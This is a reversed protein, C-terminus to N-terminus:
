RASCRRFAEYAASSGRLPVTSGAISMTSGSTFADAFAPSAVYFALHTQDSTRGRRAVVLSQSFSRDIQVTVQASPPMTDEIFVFWDGEAKTYSMGVIRGGAPVEHFVLCTSAGSSGVIRGTTWSQHRRIDLMSGGFPNYNQAGREGSPPPVANRPAPRYWQPGAVVALFVWFAVGISSVKIATRASPAGMPSFFRWLSWVIAAVFLILIASGIGEAVRFGLVAGFNPVFAILALLLALALVALFILTNRRIRSEPSMNATGTLRPGLAAFRHSRGLPPSPLSLM